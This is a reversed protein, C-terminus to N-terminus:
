FIDFGVCFFYRKMKPILCGGEGRGSFHEFEILFTGWFDQFLTVGGGERFLKWVCYSFNRLFIPILCGGWGRELFINFCSCFLFFGQFRKVKPHSGKNKFNFKWKFVTNQTRLKPVTTSKASIKSNCFIGYFDLKFKIKLKDNWFM